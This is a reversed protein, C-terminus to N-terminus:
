RAAILANTIRAKKDLRKTFRTGTTRGCTSTMIHIELKSSLPLQRCKGDRGDSRKWIVKAM